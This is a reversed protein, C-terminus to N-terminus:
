ADQDREVREDDRDDPHRDEERPDEIMGTAADPKRDQQVCGDICCPWAAKAREM